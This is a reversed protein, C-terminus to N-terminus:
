KFSFLDRQGRDSEGDMAVYFMGYCFGDYFESETFIEVMEAMELAVCNM